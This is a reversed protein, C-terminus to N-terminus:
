LIYFYEMNVGNRHIRKISGEGIVSDERMVIDFRSGAEQSSSVKQKCQIGESM